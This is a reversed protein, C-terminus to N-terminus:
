VVATGRDNVPTPKPGPRVGERSFLLVNGGRDNFWFAAWAGTDEVRQLSLEFGTPLSVIWLEAVVSRRHEYRVLTMGLALALLVLLWGSRARKM